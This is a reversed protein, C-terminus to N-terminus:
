VESYGREVGRRLERQGKALVCNPYPVVLRQHRLLEGNRRSRQRAPLPSLPYVSPIAHRFYFPLTQCDVPHIQPKMHPAQIPTDVVDTGAPEGTM